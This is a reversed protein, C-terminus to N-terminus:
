KQQKRFVWPEIVVSDRWLGLKNKIANSEAQAYAIRDSESLESAYRDDYHAHGYQVLLLNIDHGAYYVVSIARKYQDEKDCRIQVHRSLVTTRLFDRAEIGGPQALEPSDVSKARVIIRKGGRPTVHLSDGDHVKTVVGEIIVERAYVGSFEVWSLLVALYVWKM